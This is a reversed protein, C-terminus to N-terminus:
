SAPTFLARPLVTKHWVKREIYLFEGCTFMNVCNAIGTNKYWSPGVQIVLVLMHGESM